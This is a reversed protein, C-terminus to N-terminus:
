KSKVRAAARKQGSDLKDATTAVQAELKKLMNNLSRILSQREAPGLQQAEGSGEGLEKLRHQYADVLVTGVGLNWGDQPTLRKSRPKELKLQKMGGDLSAQDEFYRTERSREDFIFLGKKAKGVVHGEYYMWWQIHSVCVAKNDLVGGTAPRHLCIGQNTFLDSNALFNKGPTEISWEALGIRAACDASQLVTLLSSVLLCVLAQRLCWQSRFIFAVHM